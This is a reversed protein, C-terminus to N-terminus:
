RWPSSEIYMCGSFLGHGLLFRDYKLWGNEPAFMTDINTEPLNTIRWKQNGWKFHFQSSVTDMEPLACNKTHFTNKQLLLLFYIDLFKGLKCPKIRVDGKEPWRQTESEFIWPPVTRFSSVIHVSTAEAWMSLFPTLFPFHHFIVGSWHVKRTRTIPPLCCIIVWTALFIGPILPIYGALQTIIYWRDWKNGSGSVVISWFGM